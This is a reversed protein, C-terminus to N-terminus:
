ITAYVEGLYKEADLVMTKVGELSLTTMNYDSDAIVFNDSRVFEVSAGKHEDVTHKLNKIFSIIKDNNYISTIEAQFLIIKQNFDQADYSINKISLFGNITLDFADYITNVVPLFLKPEHVIAYTTDVIRRAVSLQQMAETKLNNVDM